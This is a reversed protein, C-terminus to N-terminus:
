EVNSGFVWSTEDNLLILTSGEFRIKYNGPLTQAFHAEEQMVKPDACMKKTLVMPQIQVEDESIMVYTGSFNNCGTNGSYRGDAFSLSKTELQWNQELNGSREIPTDSAAIAASAMLVAAVCGLVTVSSLDAAVGSINKRKKM